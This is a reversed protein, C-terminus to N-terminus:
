LVYNGAAIWSALDAQHARQVAPNVRTQAAHEILVHHASRVIGMATVADVVDAFLAASGPVSPYAGVEGDEAFNGELTIQWDTVADIQNFLDEDVVIVVEDCMAVLVEIMGVNLRLADRNCTLTWKNPAVRQAYALSEAFLRLISPRVKADPLHKQVFQFVDSPM